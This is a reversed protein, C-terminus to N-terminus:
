INLIEVKKLKRPKNQIGLYTINYDYKTRDLLEIIRWNVTNERHKTVFTTIDVSRGEKTLIELMYIYRENRDVM